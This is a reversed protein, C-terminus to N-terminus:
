MNETCYLDTSIKRSKTRAVRSDIIDSYLVRVGEKELFKIIPKGIYVDHIVYPHSVILITM